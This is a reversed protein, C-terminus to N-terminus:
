KELKTIRTKLDEIIEQQEKIANILVATLEAYAVSKLGTDSAELILEPLVAEVEQAIVGVKTVETNFDTRNYYVGRMAQVKSICNDIEVVNEKVRSDSNQTLTGNITMNATSPYFYYRTSSGERWRVTGCNMGFFTESNNTHFRFYKNTSYNGIYMDSNGGSGLVFTGGHAKLNGCAFQEYANGPNNRVAITGNSEITMSSAVVGGWHWSIRPPAGSSGSYNSERLEVAANTYSTSTSSPAFEKNGTITQNGTTRVYTGDSSSVFPLNSFTTEFVNGNSAAMLLFDSSAVSASLTPAAKIISDSGLYDVAVDNANATLGAGGIVNLTVSGSTGGGTLGTGATVGTIDGTYYDGLTGDGLIVQANDGEFQLQITGSSTIPTNSISIADDTDISLGVSTVSGSGTGGTYNLTITENATSVVSQINTGGVIGFTQGNTITFTTGTGSPLNSVGFGTMAGGTATDVYDKTAADQAATPNTLGSLIGTITVGTSSTELRKTGYNGYLISNGVSGDARFYDVVQGTTGNDSQIIVDKDLSENIIYLDGTTNEIISNTGDHYIELDGPSSTASTGFTCKIGDIFKADRSFLVQRTPGSIRLYEEDGGNFNVQKFIQSFASTGTVASGTYYTDKAISAIYNNTGNHFIRLDNANGWRAEVNDAHQTDEDFQTIGTFTKAGSITQATTLTVYNTLSPVSADVYAKNAADTSVSVTDIGQVRGTGNLVIDGGQVTFNGGIFLDGEDGGTGNMYNGYPLDAFTGTTGTFSSTSTFVITESGLPFVELYLTVANASNTKFQVEYDENQNSIVRVSLRTYNGSLATLQMDQYHNVALDILNSIVVSNTTGQVSFRIHSSLTGGNVTFATKYASSSVGTSTGKYVRAVTDDVQITGTSTITGGTIGNTTAISTVTGGSGPHADVYAKNAYSTTTTPAPGTTQGSITGGALPLFPGNPTNNADLIKGWSGFSSGPNDRWYMNGDSSFALQANYNGSHQGVTIVGNANDSVPPTNSSSSNFGRYELEGVSVSNAVTNLNETSPGNGGAKIKTINFSATLTSTDRQTATLTQTTTGSFALATIDDNAFGDVYAKTTFNAAATPTIGSVLGTFLGTGVVHLKASPTQTGLGLNGLGDLNMLNDSGWHGFTLINENSGAGGKYKWGIYGANKTSSVRGIVLINNQEDTMNPTMLEVSHNFTSSSTNDIELTPSNGTGTATINVKGAFTAEGTNANFTTPNSGGAGIKVFSNASGAYQFEIAAGARNFQAANWTVYGDTFGGSTVYTTSIAGAFTANGVPTISFKTTGSTANPQAGTRIYFTGNSNLLAVGESATDTSFFLRGSNSTDSTDESIDIGNAGGSSVQLRTTPLSNLGINVNDDFYRNGPADVRVAKWGSIYCARTGSTNTYNFLAQPTWYKTALEFKGTQNSDFGGIYGSVKTWSTGPNTNAMVWYGYSGPNGGTNGFTANFENSGMYHGMEGVNKIYCEMYYVGDNDVPIFPFGSGYVGGVSVGGDIYIAYGGPADQAISNTSWSVNNNNFLEKLQKDSWTPDIEWITEGPTYHGPSYKQSTSVRANSVLLTRTDLMDNTADWLFAEDSAINSGTTWYAVRGASGGGTVNGSGTGAGIDSRLQAGTRYKVVGSDSVLFKDTDTTANAISTISLNATGGDLQMVTLTNAATARIGTLNGYISNYSGYFGNNSEYALYAGDVLVSGQGGKSVVVFESGSTMSLGTERTYGYSSLDGYWSGTSLGMGFIDFGDVSLDGAVTLKNTSANYTLGADGAVNSTSTWYTLQTAAGDGSLTSSNDVKQWGDTGAGTAVYIAWDGVEWDTIGSLNTSGAVTVIWFQGNVPSASPASGSSADWNGEFALGSPITGIATNIATQIQAGTALNPSSASVAATSAQVIPNATSGGITITNANGTTVSQVVGATFTNSVTGGDQQTLTITKTTTGTIAVATVMNNYATNWNSINTTSFDQTSYIQYWTGWGGGNRRRHWLKDTNTTMAIQAMYDGSHTNFSLLGNANHLGSSPTNSATADFTTYAWGGETTWNRSNLDTASRHGTFQPLTSSGGSKFNLLEDQMVIDGTMTGGALPLYVGAGGDHADVYDKNAADTGVSVTDIGQIRGTGLLRVDGSQVTFVASNYISVNRGSDGIYTHDTGTTAGGVYFNDQAGISGSGIYQIVGGANTLTIDDSIDASGTVTIGAIATRLKISNDYRLEVYENEFCRVAWSGTGDLLGFSSTAAGDSYLYGQLQGDNDYLQIGGNSSSAYTLRLYNTGGSDGLKTGSSFKLEDIGDIDNDGMNIPGSMTGGILPLYDGVSTAVASTVFATSAARTTNDGTSRTGVDPTSSFSALGANTITLRDTSNTIISVGTGGRRVFGSTGVTSNVFFGEGNGANVKINGGVELKGGTGTANIGVSGDPYLLTGASNQWMSDAGFINPSTLAQQSYTTEVRYRVTYSSNHGDYIIANNGSITMLPHNSSGGGLSVARATWANNSSNRFVIYVSSNYTGTGTTTLYFKYQYASTLTTGQTDNLSAIFGNGTGAGSDQGTYTAYKKNGFSATGTTVVEFLDNPNAKGIGVKGLKLVLDPNQSTSSTYRGITFVNQNLHVAYNDVSSSNDNFTINPSLSTINLGEGIGFTGTGGSGTYTIDLKGSPTLTGIGLKQDQSFTAVFVGDTYINVEHGSGGDGARIQLNGSSTNSVISHYIAGNNLADFEIKNDDTHANSALRLISGGADYLHLTTLPAEVGIGVRNAFYGNNLFQIAM